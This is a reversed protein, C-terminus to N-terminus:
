PNEWRFRYIKSLDILLTNCVALNDGIDTINKYVQSFYEALGHQQM